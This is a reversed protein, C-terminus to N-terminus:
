QVLSFHCLYHVLEGFSQMLRYSWFAL